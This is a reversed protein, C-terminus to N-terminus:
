VAALLDANRIVADAIGDNVSKAHRGIDAGDARTLNEQKLCEIVASCVGDALAQKEQPLAGDNGTLLLTELSDALEALLPLGRLARFSWKYFPQHRRNLLFIASMAARVFEIMALQASGQEGHALCRGYNYQGAQEMLCLNGALKKRRIDEPMRTLKERIESFLGCDDRFVAGNTAEALAASPLSFWQGVTLNGDRSGIKAEYFDGIRIVGHRNGGAPNMLSRRYGLFEKPLKAYARELRFCDKRDIVEEDPIFICFGPEFDHDKSLDDDFGFCESGSGVLGIALLPALDPFQERIM